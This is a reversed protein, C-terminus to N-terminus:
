VQYLLSLICVDRSLCICTYIETHYFTIFIYLWFRNSNRYKRGLTGGFWGQLMWGKSDEWSVPKWKPGGAAVGQWTRLNVEDSLPKVLEGSLNRTACCIDSVVHFCIQKERYLHLAM